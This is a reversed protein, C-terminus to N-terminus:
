HCPNDGIACFEVDTSGPSLTVPGARFWYSSCLCGGDCTAGEHGSTLGWSTVDTNTAGRLQVRATGAWNLDSIGGHNTNSYFYYQNTGGAPKWCGGYYHAQVTGCAFCLAALIFGLQGLDRRPGDRMLM